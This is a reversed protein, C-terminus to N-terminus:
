FVGIIIAGVFALAVYAAVISLKGLLPTAFDMSFSGQNVVTGANVCYSALREVGFFDARSDM